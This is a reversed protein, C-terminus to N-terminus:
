TRSQATGLRRDAKLTPDDGTQDAEDNEDVVVFSQARDKKENFSTRIRSAFIGEDKNSRKTICKTMREKPLSRDFTHLRISYLM